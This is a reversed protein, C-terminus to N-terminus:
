KGFLMYIQSAEWHRSTCYQGNNSRDPIMDLVKSHSINIIEVNQLGTILLLVGPSSYFSCRLSLKRINKLYGVIQKAIKKELYGLYKLNTLNTWNEGVVQFEFRGTLYDDSIILTKLNKWQSFAIPFSNKSQFCWRPLALKEINPMRYFFFHSVLCLDIKTIWNNLHSKGRLLLCSIRTKYIPLSTLSCIRRSVAASSQSM